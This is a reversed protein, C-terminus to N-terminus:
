QTQEETDASQKQLPILSEEFYEVIIGFGYLPLCGIFGFVFASASVKMITLALYATNGSAELSPPYGYGAGGYVAAYELCDANGAYLLFSFLFALGGVIVCLFFLIKALTKIKYGVKNFM